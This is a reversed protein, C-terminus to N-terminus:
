DAMLYNQVPRLLYDREPEAIYETFNGHQLAEATLPAVVEEELRRKVDLMRQKYDQNKVGSRFSLLELSQDLSHLVGAMQEAEARLSDTEGNIYEVASSYYKETAEGIKESLDQMWDESSQELSSNAGLIENLSSEILDRDYIEDTDIKEAEIDTVLHSTDM